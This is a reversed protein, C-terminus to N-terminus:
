SGSRKTHNQTVNETNFTRRTIHFMGREISVKNLVISDEMNFGGTTLIFIPPNILNKYDREKEEVLCYGYEKPNLM